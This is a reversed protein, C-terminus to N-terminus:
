LTHSDTVPPPRLARANSYAISSKEEVDRGTDYKRCSQRTTAIETFNM